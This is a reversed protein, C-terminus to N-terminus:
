NSNARLNDAASWLCKEIAEIHELQSMRSPKQNNNTTVKAMLSERFENKTPCVSFVHTGSPFALLNQRM